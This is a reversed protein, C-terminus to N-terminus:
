ELDDVSRLHAGQPRMHCSLNGAPDHEIGCGDLNQYTEAFVGPKCPYFENITGRIVWDGPNARMEGELTPIVLHKPHVGVLVGYGQAWRIVDAANEGTYEMAEVVVPRKVFMTPEAM